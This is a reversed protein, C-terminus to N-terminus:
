EADIYFWDLSGHLKIIPMASSAFELKGYRWADIGTDVEISCAEAMLELVNDYNLTVISSFRNKDLVHQMYTACTLERVTLLENLSRLIYDKTQSLAEDLGVQKPNIARKALEIFEDARRM